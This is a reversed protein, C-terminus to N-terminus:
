ILRNKKAFLNNFFTAAVSLASEFNEVYLSGDTWKKEDSLTTSDLVLEQGNKGKRKWKPINKSLDDPNDAQFSVSSDIYYLDIVKDFLLKLEDYISRYLPYPYDESYLIDMVDNTKRLMGKYFADTFQSSVNGKLSILYDLHYKLADFFLNFRVKIPNEATTVLNPYDNKLDDGLILKINGGAKYHQLILDVVDNPEYVSLSTEKSIAYVYTDNNIEIVFSYFDPDEVLKSWIVQALSSANPQSSGWGLYKIFSEYIIYGLGSGRLSHPVGSPFHIRNTPHGETNININNLLNDIGAEKNIPGSPTNYLKDANMPVDKNGHEDGYPGLQSDYVQSTPQSFYKQIFENPFNVKYINKVTEEFTIGYENGSSSGADKFQNGKVDSVKKIKLSPFASDTNSKNTDKLGKMKEPSLYTQSLDIRDEDLENECILPKVNGLKSELLNYFRNRYENINM